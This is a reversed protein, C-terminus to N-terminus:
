VTIEGRPDEVKQCYKKECAVKEESEIVDGCNLDCKLSNSFTAAVYQGEQTNVELYSQAFSVILPLQEVFGTVKDVVLPATEGAARFVSGAVRSGKEVITPLTEVLGKSVTAVGKTVDGALKLSAGLTEGFGDNFDKDGLLKSVFNVKQVVLNFLGGIVGLGFNIIGGLDGLGGNGSGDDSGFTKGQREEKTDNQINPLAGCSIALLCVLCFYNM